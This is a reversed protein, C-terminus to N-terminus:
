GTSIKVRSLQARSSIQLKQFIKHVHKRITHTSVHLANAIQENTKEQALLAMVQKERTTLYQSTISGTPSYTAALEGLCGFMQYALKPPCTLKGENIYEITRKIENLSASSHLWGMAGAKICEIANEEGQPLGLLLVKLGPLSVTANGCLRLAQHWDSLIQIVLIDPSYRVVKTLAKPGEVMDVVSIAATSLALSLCEASYLSDYAILVRPISPV